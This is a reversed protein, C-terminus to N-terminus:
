VKEGMQVYKIARAVELFQKIAILSKDCGCYVFTVKGRRGRNDNWFLTREARASPRRVQLREWPSAEAWWWQNPGLASCYLASQERRHRHARPLCLRLRYRHCPPDVIAKRRRRHRCKLKLQTKTRWKFVVAATFHVHTSLNLSFFGARSFLMSM